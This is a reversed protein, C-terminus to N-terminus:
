PLYGPRTVERGSAIRPAIGDPRSSALGSRSPFRGPFLYPALTKNSYHAPIQLNHQALRDGSGIDTNVLGAGWPSNSSSTHDNRLTHPTHQRISSVRPSPM